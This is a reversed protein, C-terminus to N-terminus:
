PSPRRSAPKFSTATLDRPTLGTIKKVLENYANMIPSLPNEECFKVVFKFRSISDTGEFFDVKGPTVMNIATTFGQLFSEYVVAYSDNKRLDETMQGCTSTGSFFVRGEQDYATAQSVVLATTIGLVSKTLVTIIKGM